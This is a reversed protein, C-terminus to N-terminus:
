RVWHIRSAETRCAGLQPSLLAHHFVAEAAQDGEAEQSGFHTWHM